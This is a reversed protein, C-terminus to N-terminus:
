TRLGAHLWLLERLMFYDLWQGLRRTVSCSTYNWYWSVLGLRGGDGDGRWVTADDKGTTTYLVVPVYTAILTPLYVYTGTPSSCLHSKLNIPYRVPRKGPARQM